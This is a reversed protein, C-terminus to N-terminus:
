VQEPCIIPPIKSPIEPITTPDIYPIKYRPHTFFAFWNWFQWVDKKFTRYLVTDASTPHCQKYRNFHGEIEKYTREGTKWSVEERMRFEAHRTTYQFTLTNEPAFWTVVMRRYMYSYSCLALFVILTLLATILGTWQAAKM